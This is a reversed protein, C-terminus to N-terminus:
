DEESESREPDVLRVKVKFEGEILVVEEEDYRYNTLGHKRMLEVLTQRALVEKETLAMRKDRISVYDGAAIEIEKIKKPAVGEGEIAPLDEQKRPM